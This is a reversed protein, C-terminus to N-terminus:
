RRWNIGMFETLMRAPDNKPTRKPAPLHNAHGKPKRCIHCDNHRASKLFEHKM